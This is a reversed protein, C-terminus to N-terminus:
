IAGLAYFSWLSGGSCRPAASSPLWLLRGPHPPSSLPPCPPRSGRTVGTFRLLKTLQRSKVISFKSCLFLGTRISDTEFIPRIFATQLFDKLLNQSPTQLKAHRVEKVCPRNQIPVFPIHVSAPPSGTLMVVVRHQCIPSIVHSFQKPELESNTFFLSQKKIYSTTSHTENLCISQEQSGSSM